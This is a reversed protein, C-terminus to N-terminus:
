KSVNMKDMIYDRTAEIVNGFEEKLYKGFTEKSLVGLKLRSIYNDLRRIQLPTLQGNTKPQEKVEVNEIPKAETKITEPKVPVVEQKPQEPPIDSYIDDDVKVPGDPLITNDMAAEKAMEDKLEDVTMDKDDKKGWMLKVYDVISQIVDADINTQRDKSESTYILVKHFWNNPVQVSIINRSLSKEALYEVVKCIKNDIPENDNAEISVGDSFPCADIEIRRAPVTCKRFRNVITNASMGSPRGVRKPSNDSTTSQNERWKNIIGIIRKSASPIGMEVDWDYREDCLLDRRTTKNEMLWKDNWKAICKGKYFKQGHKVFRFGSISKFIDERDIDKSRFKGIASYMLKWPIGNAKNTAERIKGFRVRAAITKPILGNRYANFFNMDVDYASIYFKGDRQKYYERITTINFYILLTEVDKIREELVTNYDKKNNMKNGKRQNNNNM